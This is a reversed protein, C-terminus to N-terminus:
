HRVSGISSILGYIPAVIALMMGGVLGAVLVLMIPELLTTLTKIKKSTQYDLFESAEQLSKDLSGSKEGVEIMKKLIGPFLKGKKALGQSLRGGQLIAKYGENIAERVQPKSVVDKTLELASTIPIGSMLLLSMSRTFRTLDIDRVLSGLLPLSFVIRLIATKKKNYIIVSLIIIATSVIITLVTNNILFDSMFLLVKTALPLAIRLSKFVGGIKPVIGYLMGLLVVMFIIMIFAPYLMAGKVKDRFEMEKMLNNKIDKLVRDLTGSEEAAKIINITVGDFINVFQGLSENVQLGQELDTKLQNLVILFSGKADEQLSEVSEIISIGSNLMTGLNGVFVLKDDDSLTISKNVITKTIM